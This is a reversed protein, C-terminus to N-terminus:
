FCASSLERVLKIRVKYKCKWIRPNVDQIQVLGEVFSSFNSLGEFRFEYSPKLRSRQGQSHTLLCAPLLHSIWEIPLQGRDKGTRLRFLSM